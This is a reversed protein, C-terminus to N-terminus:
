NISDTVVDAKDTGENEEKGSNSKNTLGQSISSEQKRRASM